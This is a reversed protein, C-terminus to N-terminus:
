QKHLVVAKRIAQLLIWEERQRSLGFDFWDTYAAQVAAAQQELLGALVLRGRNRVLSSFCPALEILPGALINALLIDVSLLPLEEPM